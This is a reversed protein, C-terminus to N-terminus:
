KKGGKKRPKAPTAQQHPANIEDLISTLALTEQPTALRIGRRTFGEFSDSTVHERIDIVSRGKGLDLLRIRYKGIRTFEKLVNAEQTNTM